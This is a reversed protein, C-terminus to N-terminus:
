SAGHTRRFLEVWHATKLRSPPTQMAVIPHLEVLKRFYKIDAFCREILARYSSRVAIDLLSVDRPRLELLVTDVAPHPWFDTRRLHTRVRATFWPAIVAGLASTFGDKEILLKYAFQKQVILYAAEPAQENETLKRVLPSSIHFPINAFVKYPESGFDVTLADIQRIEVNPINKLNRRLIEVTQPEYEIAIVHRTRRALVSTIVGSGAGIDYVTDNLSLGAMGVLEAVKQPSRLFNQSMHPLRKM